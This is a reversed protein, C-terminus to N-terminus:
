NNVCSKTAMNKLPLKFIHSIFPLILYFDLNKNLYTLLYDKQYAFYIKFSYIILFILCIFYIIIKKSEDIADKMQEITIPDKDEKVDEKDEEEIDEVWDDDEMEESEIIIPENNNEIKTIWEDEINM